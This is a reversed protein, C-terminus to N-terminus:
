RGTYGFGSVYVIRYHKVYVRRLRRVAFRVQDFRRIEVICYPCQYMRALSDCTERQVAEPSEQIM